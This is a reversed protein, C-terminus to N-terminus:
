AEDDEEERYRELEDRADAMLAALAADDGDKRPLNAWAALKLLLEIHAIAAKCASHHASFSRADDETEQAYFRRYSQMACEIADPLHTAITARM